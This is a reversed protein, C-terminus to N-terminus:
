PVDYIYLTWDISQLAPLFISITFAIVDLATQTSVGWVEVIDFFCPNPVHVKKGVSIIETSLSFYHISTLSCKTAAYTERNDRIITMEM